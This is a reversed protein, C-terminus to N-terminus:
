QRSQGELDAIKKELEDVRKELEDIKRGDEKLYATVQEETFTDRECSPLGEALIFCAMAIAAKM